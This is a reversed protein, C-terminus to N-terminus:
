DRKPGAPQPALQRFVAVVRAMDSKSLSASSPLSLCTRYLEGSIDGESIYHSEAYMPLRNMPVWLARVQIDCSEMTQMIAKPNPIRVTQLWNNPRVKDLIRQFRIQPHAAILLKEYQRALHRKLKLIHELQEMQALGLAALLNPLRYNYGIEDHFYGEPQTKAQNILHRARAALAPDDTLIMGGGGTTIVKNGNFSLCGLTGFTGAHKGGYTSGMAEAADEILILGYRTALEQLRDMDGMNGLVHVPMLVSIKRGSSLHICRGEVMGCQTTLFKELLDLDMQWTDPDVDILVPDAGVYRVTNVSAVFTLNSTIVLDKPEVGAVILSIHLAATGNLTAVAHKAGTYESVTEEFKQAFPGASSVWGTELCDKIYRWAQGALYPESLPIM